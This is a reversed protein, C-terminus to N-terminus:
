LQALNRIAWSSSSWAWWDEAEKYFSHACRRSMVDIRLYTQLAVATMWKGQQTRKWKKEFNTSLHFSVHRKSGKKRGEKRRGEREGKRGEKWTKEERKGKKEKEQACKFPLQTDLSQSLYSPYLSWWVCLAWPRHQLVRPGYLIDFFSGCLQFCKLVSRSPHIANWSAHVAEKLPFMPCETQPVQIVVHISVYVEPYSRRWAMTSLIPTLTRSMDQATQSPPPHPRQISPLGAAKEPCLGQPLKGFSCSAHHAWTHSCTIMHTQICM